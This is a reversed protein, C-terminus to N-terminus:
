VGRLQDPWIQKHLQTQLRVNLNDNLIWQALTPLSLGEIGPLKEGPGVPQVASLLVAGARENLTHTQIQEKAWDYDARDTLVFKIEDCSRLQEVNSWLNRDCEGSGPTKFDIIRIVREDCPGIDYAGSTEILVTYGADALSAMLPHVNPQILPEGGTVEVLRCTESLQNLEVHIQDITKKQGEYFAYETDCYVCRLPCGTLRVFLCPQGTWTSEGQISFFIENITLTPTSM